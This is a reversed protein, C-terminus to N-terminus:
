APPRPAERPSAGAAPGYIADLGAQMQAPRKAMERKMMSRMLPSMLKMLGKPRTEIEGGIEAGTGHPKFTFAVDMDMRTGHCAFGLRGPRDYETIEVDLDGLGRYSGRFRTGQGVPGDTLKEVSRVDPQWKPENRVDALLDFLQEPPHDFTAPDLRTLVAARGYRTRVGCSL